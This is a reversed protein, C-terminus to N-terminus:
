EDGDGDDGDDDDDPGPDDEAWDLLEVDIAVGDEDLTVVVEDGVAVADLLSPDDVPYSAEDSGDGPAITLSSGDDALATVTGYVEELGADGGDEEDYGGQEDDNAAAPPASLVKIALVGGRRGAAITILLTEGPTRARSLKFTSGDGLRVVAGRRSSRVVRGIFSIRRQRGTVMVARKHVRVVDGRRLGRTSSVRVASVRHAKDVLRVVHGGASLVVGRGSAPAGALATPASLAGAAAACALAALLRRSIPM